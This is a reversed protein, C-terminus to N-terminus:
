AGAKLREEVGKESEKWTKATVPVPDGSKEAEDLKAEVAVHAQRRQEERIM